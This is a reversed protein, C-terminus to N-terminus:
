FLYRRISIYLFMCVNAKWNSQSHLEQDSLFSVTYISKRVGALFINAPFNLFHHINWLILSSKLRFQITFPTITKALKQQSLTKRSSYRSWFYVGFLNWKSNKGGLNRPKTVTKPCGLCHLNLIKQRGHLGANNNM